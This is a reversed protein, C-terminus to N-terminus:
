TPPPQTGTGTLDVAEFGGSTNDGIKLIASRLGTAAPDFSIQVTCSGGVAIEVGASVCTSTGAIGFEAANIGSISPGTFDLNVSGTNVITLTEYATTAVSSSPFTINVPGSSQSVGDVTDTTYAGTGELQLQTQTGITNDDVVVNTARTAASSPEFAVGFICHQGLGVVFPYSSTIQNICNGAAVSFDTSEAGTVGIGSIYLPVSGVNTVTVYQLPSTTLVGQVAFNLTNQAIHANSVTATAWVGTGLLDVHGADGSTGWSSDVINVVGTRPGAGSPQFQIAFSCNEHATLYSCNNRNLIFDTPEGVTGIAVSGIVQTTSADNHVTVIVPDDAVFVGEKAFTLSRPSFSLPPPSAGVAVVVNTAAVSSTRNAVTLAFTYTVSNPTKNGSLTVSKSVKSSCPQSSPFGKLSPTVTMTCTAGYLFSAKLEIRGGADSLSTNDATFSSVVPAPIPPPAAEGVVVPTGTVVATKNKVSLAFSYSLATGGANAGLSVPQSL